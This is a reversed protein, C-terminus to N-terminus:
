FYSDAEESCFMDSCWQPEMNVRRLISIQGFILLMKTFISNFSTILTTPPLNYPTIGAIEIAMTPNKDYHYGSKKQFM